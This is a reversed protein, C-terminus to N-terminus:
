YFRTNLWSDRAVEAASRASESDRPSLWSATTYKVVNEEDSINIYLISYSSNTNASFTFRLGIGVQGTYQAVTPM